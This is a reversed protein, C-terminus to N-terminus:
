GLMGYFISGLTSLFHVYYTVSCKDISCNDLSVQLQGYNSPLLKYFKYQYMRTLCVLSSAIRQKVVWPSNCRSIKHKCYQKTNGMPISTIFLFERCSFSLQVALEDQDHGCFDALNNQFTNNVIFSILAQKRFYASTSWLSSLCFLRCPNTDM